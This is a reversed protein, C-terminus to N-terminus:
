AIEVRRADPSLADHTAAVVTGGGMVHGAVLEAVLARGAADLSAVPEDLLWLPRALMYCRALALRRRQGASLYAVPLHSQRSLRLRELAAEPSMGAGFWAAAFALNERATMQPKLADAHAMYHLVAAYSGAELLVEGRSMQVRGAASAMVGSLIRLLSTKGAGNPGVIETLGPGASFSLGSFLVREGRRCALDRADLTINPVM